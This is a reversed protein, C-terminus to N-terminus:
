LIEFSCQFGYTKLKEGRGAERGGKGKGSEKGEEEWEGAEGKGRERGGERNSLLIDQISPISHRNPFVSVHFHRDKLFKSVQNPLSM